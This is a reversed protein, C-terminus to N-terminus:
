RPRKATYSSGAKVFVTRHRVIDEVAVVGALM